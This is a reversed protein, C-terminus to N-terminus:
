DLTEGEREGNSERRVRAAAAQNIASALADKTLRNFQIAPSANVQERRDVKGHGPSQPITNANNSIAPHDGLNQNTCVGTFSTYM